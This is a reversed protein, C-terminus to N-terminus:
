VPNVLNVHNEPNRAKSATSAMGFYVNEALIEPYFRLLAFQNECDRPTIRDIRFIMNIRDLFQWRM